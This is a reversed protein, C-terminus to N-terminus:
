AQAALRCQSYKSASQRIAACQTLAAIPGPLFGTYKIELIVDGPGFAPAYVAKESFLDITGMAARVSRDMTVRVIGPEYVYAERTYDVIVRPRLLRTREMLTFDRLVGNDLAFPNGNSNLTRGEILRECDERSLVVSEKLCGWGNKQKRELRIFADSGNYIRIRFKKRRAEGILNDTVATNCFDDFYLSSVRYRGTEDAHGDPRCLTKLRAALVQAMGDNIIYKLEHRYM